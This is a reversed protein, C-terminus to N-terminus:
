PAGYKDYDQACEGNCFLKPASVDELCNHCKGKFQLTKPKNNLTQKLAHSLMEEALESANDVEDAM